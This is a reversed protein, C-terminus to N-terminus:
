AKMVSHVSCFADSLRSVLYSAERASTHASVSSMADLQVVEGAPQPHIHVHCSRGVGVNGLISNNVTDAIGVHELRYCYLRQRLAHADRFGYSRV